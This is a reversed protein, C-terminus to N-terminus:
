MGQLRGIIGKRTAYDQWLQNIFGCIQYAFEKEEKSLNSSGAQLSYLSQKADEMLELENRTTM